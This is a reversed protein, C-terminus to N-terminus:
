QRLSFPLLTLQVGQEDERSPWVVHAGEEPTWSPVELLSGRERPRRWNKFSFNSQIVALTQALITLDQKMQILIIKQPLAGSINLFNRLHQKCHVIIPMDIGSFVFFIRFSLLLLLFSSHILNGWPSSSEGGRQEVISCAPGVTATSGWYIWLPNNVGWKAGLVICQCASFFNCSQNIDKDGRKKQKRYTKYHM